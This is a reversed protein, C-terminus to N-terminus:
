GEKGIVRTIEIAMKTGVVGPHCKFKREKDVRVFLEEDVKTELRVVDGVQLGLVDGMTITAEGLEVILTSPVEQLGELLRKQIEEGKEVEQITEYQPSLREIIPEILTYPMCHNMGSEVDGIKVGLVVNLVGEEQPVLQLRDARTRIGELRPDLEVIEAWAKKLAEVMKLLIDNSISLEIPTLERDPEVNMKGQGGLLRDIITIIVLNAVEILSTGKLPSMNVIACCTTSPLGSIFERYPIQRIQNVNLEVSTRLQDSISAAFIRGFTEYISHVVQIQEKSLRQPHRFDYDIVKREDELHAKEALGM